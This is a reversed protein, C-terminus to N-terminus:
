HKACDFLDHLEPETNRMSIVGGGMLTLGAQKIKKPAPMRDETTSKLPLHVDKLAIYKLGVERTMSITQDLTFKRFTYSAMGLKLGHSPDSAPATGAALASRPIQAAALAASGLAGAQLFGRRSIQTAHKM